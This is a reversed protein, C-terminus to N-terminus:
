GNLWELVYPDDQKLEVKGEFAVTPYLVCGDLPVGELKSKSCPCHKKLMLRTVDHIEGLTLGGTKSEVKVRRSPCCTPAFIMEKVPPQCVLMQRCLGGVRKPHIKGYAYRKPKFSASVVVEFRPEQKATTQSDAEGAGYLSIAYVEAASKNWDGSQRITVKFDKFELISGDFLTSLHGDRSPRM